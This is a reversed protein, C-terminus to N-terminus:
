PSELLEESEVGARAAAIVRMWELLSGVKRSTYESMSSIPAKATLGSPLRRVAMPCYAVSRISKVIEVSSPERIPPTLFMSAPSATGTKLPTLLVITM